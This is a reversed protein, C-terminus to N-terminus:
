GIKMVSSYIATINTKMPKVYIIHFYGVPVSLNYVRFFNQGVM